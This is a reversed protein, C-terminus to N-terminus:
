NDPICSKLNNKYVDSSALKSSAQQIVEYTRETNALDCDAALVFLADNATCVNVVSGNSM